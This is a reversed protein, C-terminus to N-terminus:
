ARGLELRFRGAGLDWACFRLGTFAHIVEINTRAHLSLGSCTYSGEGALAIPLMVQDSLHEEVSTQTQRWAVFANAV